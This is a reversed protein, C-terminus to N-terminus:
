SLKAIGIKTRTPTIKVNSNKIKTKLLNINDSEVFFIDKFYLFLKCFFRKLKLFKILIQRM